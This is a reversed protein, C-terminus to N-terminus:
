RVNIIVVAQVRVKKLNNFKNIFKTGLVGKSGSIAIVKKKVEM